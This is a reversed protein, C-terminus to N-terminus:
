APEAALGNTPIFVRPKTTANELSACFKEMNACQQAYELEYAKQRRDMEVQRQQQELKRQREEEASLDLSMYLLTTGRQTYLDHLFSPRTPLPHKLTQPKNM